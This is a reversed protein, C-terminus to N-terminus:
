HACHAYGWLTDREDASFDDRFSDRIDYLSDYAFRYILKFTAEEIPGRSFDGLTTRGGQIFRSTLELQATNRQLILEADRYRPTRLISQSQV